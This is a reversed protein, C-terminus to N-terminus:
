SIVKADIIKEIRSLSAGLIELSQFDISESEKPSGKELALGSDISLKAALTAQAGSMSEVNAAAHAQFAMANEFCQATLAAKMKAISGFRRMLIKYVAARAVDYKAEIEDPTRGDAVDQIIADQLVPVIQTNKHPEGNGKNVRAPLLQEKWMGPRSEKKPIEGGTVKKLKSNHKM